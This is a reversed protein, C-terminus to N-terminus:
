KRRAYDAAFICITEWGVFYNQGGRSFHTSKCDSIFVVVVHRVRVSVIRDLNGVTFDTEVHVDIDELLLIVQRGVAGREVECGGAGVELIRHLIEVLAQLKM